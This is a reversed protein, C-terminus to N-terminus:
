VRKYLRSPTTGSLLKGRRLLVLAEAHGLRPLTERMLCRRVLRLSYRWKTIIVIAPMSMERTLLFQFEQFIILHEEASIMNIIVLIIMSQLVITEQIPSTFM